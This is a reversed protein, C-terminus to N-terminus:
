SSEKAKMSTKVVLQHELSSNGAIIGKQLKPCVAKISPKMRESILAERLKEDWEKGHICRMMTLDLENSKGKWLGFLKTYDYTDPVLENDMFDAMYIYMADQFYQGAKTIHRFMNKKKKKLHKLVAKYTELALPEGKTTDNM